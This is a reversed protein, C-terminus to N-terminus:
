RKVPPPAGQPAEFVEDGTRPLGSAIDAVAFPRRRVASAKLEASPAAGTYSVLRVGVAPMPLAGSDILVFGDAENVLMVTGLRLLPRRAQQVARSQETEPRVRRLRFISCGSWAGAGALLVACLVARRAASFGPARM